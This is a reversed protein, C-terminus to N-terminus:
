FNGISGYGCVSLIGVCYEGTKRNFIIVDLSSTAIVIEDEGCWSCRSFAGFLSNTSPLCYSEKSKLVDDIEFIDIHNFSSLVVLKNKHFTVSRGARKAHSQIKCAKAFNRACIIDFSFIDTDQCLAVLILKGFGGSDPGLIICYKECPSIFFCDACIPLILKAVPSLIGSKSKDYVLRKKSDYALIYSDPWIRKLVLLVHGCRLLHYETHSPCLLDLKAHSSNSHIRMEPSHNGSKFILRENSYQLFTNVTRNYNEMSADVSFLAILCPDYLLLM